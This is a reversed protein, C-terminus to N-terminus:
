LDGVQREFHQEREGLLFGSAIAASANGTTSVCDRVKGYATPWPLPRSRTKFTGM